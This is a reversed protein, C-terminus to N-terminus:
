SERPHRHVVFFGHSQDCATVAEPFGVSRTGAGMQTFFRFGRRNFLLAQTPGARVRSTDRTVCNGAAQFHRPAARRRFPTVTEELMQKLVLPFKSLARAACVLPFRFAVVASTRNRVRM